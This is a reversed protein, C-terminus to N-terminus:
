ARHAQVDGKGKHPPTPSPDGTGPEASSSATGTRARRGLAKGEGKHPPTPTPDGIDPEASPLLPSKLHPRIAEEIVVFSDQANGIVDADRIRIVKFGQSILFADREQDREARGPLDHSAGDVEIVLRASLWAFDVVCRGIPAERRFRAGYRRFSRLYDWMEQEGITKAKRLSRARQRVGGDIASHPM